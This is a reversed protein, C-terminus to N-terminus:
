SDSLIHNYFEEIVENYNFALKMNSLEDRSFYAIKQGEKLDIKEPQLDIRKWFVHDFLNDNKYVRFLKIEGVDLDMEEIMERKVTEEPIEGHEVHGGPIDWMNPFPINPKNDRLLMLLENNSNILLIGAGIRKTM